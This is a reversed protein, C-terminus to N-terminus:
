KECWNNSNKLEKITKDHSSETKNLYTKGSCDAVFYYYNHEEPEFVSELSELGPNSIPGVPLGSFCTGRTNYANCKDLQSQTLGNSWDDMKEAYYTTVDSGLTWNDDLRNYFVGAVGARDKSSAGELEVISALTILEHISYDSEEIDEKFKEIKKGFEDLMKGFIDKISDTLYFEYTEPFLYGELPYYIAEDKMDDTLFWYKEVLSNIYEKDKLTNYVDEKTHSTNKEILSAIGRINLGEKFLITVTKATSEGGQGLVEIIKELSYSESLVYKGAELNTPKNIKIYIKYFLESKILNNEKLLSAISSYTSGSSIIIEKTETNNSVAKIGNTYLIVLTGIGLLIVAFLGIVVKKM